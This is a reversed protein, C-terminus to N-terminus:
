NRYVYDLVKLWERNYVIADWEECIRLEIHTSNVDFEVTDDGSIIGRTYMLCLGLYNSALKRSCRECECIGWTNDHWDTLEILLEHGTSVLLDGLEKNQEFKKLVIARMINLKRSEWDYRIHVGRGAKKAKWAPMDTFTKRISIDMTKQAQFAAEANGYTFGDYWVPCEYFNSFEPFVNNKRSFKIM